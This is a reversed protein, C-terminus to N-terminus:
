SNQRGLYLLAAAGILLAIGLATLGLGVTVVRPRFAFAVRHTGPTLAVARQAVNARLIPAERGDVTAQWGPYFTDALVLLGGRPANAEIVVNTARDVVIRASGTAEGDEAARELSAVIPAAAPDHLLMERRPDIQGAASLRYLEDMSPVIRARQVVRARALTGPLRYVRTGAVDGVLQARDSQLTGRVIIWHVSLAELWDFFAPKARLGTADASYLRDVFGRRNHDGILDVTWRPAIGSYGDLTAIGHLLNSNPQLVERNSYYLGLDGSWGKSARFLERHRDRTGPSFVRGPEGSQTIISATAPPALWRDADAFPNQRANHYVLDAVTVSVVLLGVLAAVSRRRESAARRSVLRQVFTLGLGGLLAIGLEVVFLFRTPGRFRALGPVFQFAIGYLPLFRGLVLGFAIVTTLAWFVIVFDHDKECAKLNRAASRGSVFRMARVGAILLALVMTALGVYGYDEWFISYNTYTSNSIDGNFYPVFFTIVNPPWYNFHTAWEWGGAGARDSVGGLEWLPLLAIMGVLAGAIVAVLAGIAFTAAPALRWGVPTGRHDRALLQYARAAVVAAYVLASIYASQPFGALVQVGFVAGFAVLWALRRRVPLEQARALGCGGAGAKELCFLAFPFYAVTGFEGLHRLQCVCFGSWAFAFGALFAGSRSAGLHRALVYAGVAAIALLLGILWGLALAPPLAVFLLLSLPDAGVPFGTYLRPTWIPLEGTSVLRAAEVRAPFEGDALDSVFTDDPIPIARGTLIQHYPALVAIVLVCAALWRARSCREVFRRFFPLVNM